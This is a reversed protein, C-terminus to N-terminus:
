GIGTVGASDPRAELLRARIWRHADTRAHKAHSYVKLTYRPIEFPAPFIRIPAAHRLAQAARNPVTMLLGSEAIIFPAALVSPLQVAVQRAFGLRDLVYDVVGRTENWPTVVVHRAALYQELTLRRRVQPHRESAIVVYDDSFWDFEEIGPTDAAAEEHYGLAFDIRGAALEDTSIKRDSHVVRFRLQPAVHQIRAIFAPLVAFATYDTAAFVFTRESRAPDFRRARALGKSMADLADGAWTAIDDARVTPQMENGLRVFLADGIATRLRALAHSLASPSMALENAAAAVSRHRYLADFVLLLNLDLRRLDPHMINLHPHLFQM